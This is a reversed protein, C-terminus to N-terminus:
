DDETKEPLQKIDEIPTVDQIDGAPIFVISKNGAEVELKQKDTWGMVNKSAWIMAVTDGGKYEYILNGDEDRMPEGDEDLMPEKDGLTKAIFAQTLDEGFKQKEDDVAQAVAENFEPDDSRYTLLTRYTFGSLRCANMIHGRSKKINKLFKKKNRKKNSEYSM